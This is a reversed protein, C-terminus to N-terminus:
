RHMDIWFRILTELDASVPPPPCLPRHVDRARGAGTDPTVAHPVYTRPVEPPCPVCFGISSSVGPAAAPTRQVGFSSSTTPRIDSEVIFSGDRMNVIVRQAEIRIPQAHKKCLFLVNGELVIADGRHHMRECHAELEPTVLHVPKVSHTLPVVHVLAAGPAPMPGILTGQVAPVCPPMGVIALPPASPLQGIGRLGAIRQMMELTLPMPLAQVRPTNERKENCSECCACAKACDCAKPVQAALCGKVSGALGVACNSGKSASRTQTTCAAECCTSEQKAASCLARLRMWTAASQRLAQTCWTMGPCESSAPQAAAELSELDKAFLCSESSVFYGPSQAHVATATALTTMLMILIRFPSM